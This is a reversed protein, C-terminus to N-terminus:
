NRKPIQTQLGLLRADIANEEVRVCRETGCKACVDYHKVIGRITPTTLMALNQLPTFESRGAVFVDPPLTGMKDRAAPTVTEKCHCVPCEPFEFLVNPKSV